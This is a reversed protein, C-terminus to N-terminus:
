TKSVEDEEEPVDMDSSLADLSEFFREFLYLLWYFDDLEFELCVSFLLM